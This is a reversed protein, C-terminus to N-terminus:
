STLKMKKYLIYLPAKATINIRQANHLKKHRQHLDFATFFVQHHNVLPFLLQKTLSTNSKAVIKFDSYNCANSVSSVTTKSINLPKEYGIGVADAVVKKVTCPSLLVLLTSFVVWLYINNKIGKYHMM